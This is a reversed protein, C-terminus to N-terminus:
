FSTIFWYNTGDYLALSMTTKGTPITVSAASAYVGSSNQVYSNSPLTLAITAGSTNDFYFVNQYGSTINSYALTRAGTASMTWKDQGGNYANHTVTGTGPTSAQLSFLQRFRRATLLGQLSATASDLEATLEAATLNLTVDSTGTNNGKFTHAPMDALMINTVEGNNITMITGSGSVSVDGYDGDALGGGGTGVSDKYAFTEVTGKKYFVSDSRRYVSTVVTDVGIMTRVQSVTGDIPAATSGTNNIKITNAPMTAAKANTISGDAVDLQVRLTSDTNGTPHSVTVTSSSVFEVSKLVFDGNTKRWGLTDPLTKNMDFNGISDISAFLLNIDSRLHSTDTYGGTGTGVVKWVTGDFKCYDLSDTNWVFLGAVPSAIANMQAGTMRPPLFGQTTSKMETIASPHATDSEAGGVLLQGTVSASGMKGTGSVQLKYGNSTIGSVVDSPTAGIINKLIIEGDPFVAMRNAIIGTMGATTIYYMGPMETTPPVAGNSFNSIGGTPFAVMSMESLPTSMMSGAANVGFSSIRGVIDYNQLAVNLNASDGRTKIFLINAATAANGYKVQAYNYGSSNANQNHITSGSITSRFSGNQSFVMKNGATTIVRDTPLTGNSNYINTTVFAPAGTIKSWALDTIWSPNSYLGSLSVKGNLFTIHAALSDKFRTTDTAANWNASNNTISTGWGTGTSLPIGASPYIMGGGAIILAAISDVYNKDVLSFRTFTSGRNQSYSIRKTIRSSDLGVTFSSNLGGLISTGTSALSIGVQGTGDPYLMQPTGGLLMLWAVNNYYFFLDGYTKVKFTTMSDIYMDYLGRGSINTANTLRGGLKVSGANETLGNSFVNSSGITSGIRMWRTGIWGFYATDGSARRLVMAGVYYSKLNNPIVPTDAFVGPIIYKKSKFVTSEYGGPGGITQPFQANVALCGFMAAIFFLFKM